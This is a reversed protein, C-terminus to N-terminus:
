PRYTEMARRALEVYRHVEEASRVKYVDRQALELKCGSACKATRLFHQTVAEEDLPEGLGLLNPTPKRLYVAKRDRLREGMFAEDCWPSVSVKALNEVTALCRDWIPHVPECCGYSVLGFRDMVRKYYPFVFEAYMEPSISSTEQSDMFLWMDKLTSPGETERLRDTYCYTGQCLHQDAVGNRLRGERELMDFYRLYDETLMDMMRHFLEPADYMAVFMDEMSMIHVIDQTPTCVISYREPVVPLIDGILEQAWEMHRREGEEDYGFRSPGLKDFDEELDSLYPIFHHGLGGTEQKKVELGFPVFWGGMPIGFRDPVMTDDEFLDFNVINSLLRKEMARAEPDECQMLPPLVCDEFTWLEIRIMPRSPASLDGHLTWDRRLQRNRESQALERQLYALQRIRSRDRDTM